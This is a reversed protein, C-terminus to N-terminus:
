GPRRLIALTEIQSTGPMFDYLNVSELTYGADVLAAVDTALSEPGCSLYAIVQPKAAILRDRGAQGLGKRPPDVVIADAGALLQSDLQTADACLFELTTDRSKSAAARNATLVAESNNEIGIVNFGEAALAFSIAGVGCYLEVINAGPPLALGKALDSFASAAQTRNLQWFAAPGLDIRTGSAYEALTPSGVMPTIADTLLVGTTHDNDCRSVGVVNPEQFALGALARIADDATSSTCVLLVLVEGDANSRLIVYRLGQSDDSAEKYVPTALATAHEALRRACKDIPAEVVRCGLTSVVDHSRPKYAGLVVSGDIRAVVYKGKNRYQETEGPAPPQVNPPNALKSVFAAQVLACKEALQGRHDLHQWSCGGCLGYAPCPPVSRASSLPSVRKVIRAWVRERHPSRHEIEVWASEEPLLDQVLFEVANAEPDTDISAVGRGDPALRKATVLHHQESM